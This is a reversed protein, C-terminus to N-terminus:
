PAFTSALVMGPTVDISWAYTNCTQTATSADAFIASGVALPLTPSLLGAQIRMNARMTLTGPSNAIPVQGGGDLLTSRGGVSLLGGSVGLIWIEHTIEYLYETAGAALALSTVSTQETQTGDGLTFFFTYTRAGGSNNILGLVTRCRIIGSQAAVPVAVGAQRLPFLNGPVRWNITGTTGIISQAAVTPNITQFPNGGFMYAVQSAYGLDPAFSRDNSPWGFNGGPAGAGVVTAGM